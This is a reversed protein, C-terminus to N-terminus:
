VVFNTCVVSVDSDDKRVLSSEITASRVLPLGTIRTTAEGDLLTGELSGRGLGDILRLAMTSVDMLRFCM